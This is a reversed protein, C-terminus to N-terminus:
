HAAHGAKELIALMEPQLRALEEILQEDTMGKVDLDGSVEIKTRDGWVRPHQKGALWKLCDIELRAAMIFDKSEGYASRAVELIRDAFLDAQWQRALTYRDRFTVDEHLWSNVTQANPIPPTASLDAQKCIGRLSEGEAIRHCIHEQAALKLEPTWFKTAM